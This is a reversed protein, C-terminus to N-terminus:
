SRNIWNTKKNKSRERLSYKDKRSGVTGMFIVQGEKDAYPSKDGRRGHMNLHVENRSDEKYNGNELGIIGLPM